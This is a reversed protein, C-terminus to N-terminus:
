CKGDVSDGDVVNGCQTDARIGAKINYYPYNPAKAGEITRVVNNWVFSGPSNTMAIGHWYSVEVENNMVRVNQPPAAGFNTIGQMKGYIRNGIVNIDSTTMQGPFSWIQVCDPHTGDKVLRAGDYVPPIPKFATCTNGLLHVRKATAINFGDSQLGIAVNGRLTIDESGRTVLVGTKGGTLTAGAVEIRKSGDIFVNVWVEPPLPADITGGLWVWGATGRITLSRVRADSADITIPKANDRRPLSIDGCKGSLTVTDGPQASALTAALTVCTAAIVSM